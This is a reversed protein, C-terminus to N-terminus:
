QLPLGQALNENVYQWEDGNPIADIEWNPYRYYKGRAHEDIGYDVIQHNGSYMSTYITEPDSDDSPHCLGINHGLEHIFVKAFSYEHYKIAQDYVEFSYGPTRAFGLYGHADKLYHAVICYHFIGKRNVQNFGHNGPANPDITGYLGTNLRLNNEEEGTIEELFDNISGGGGMSGDDIHMVIDHDSFANIVKEKANNSMAHGIMWDVEVFIDQVNVDTNFRHIETYDNIGDEDTDINNDFPNLPNTNDLLEQRDNVADGDTDIMRPNTVYHNPNSTGDFGSQPLKRNNRDAFYEDGDWLGDGDSDPNNTFTTLPNVTVTLTDTDGEGNSITVKATYTGPTNFTYVPSQGNLRTVLQNSNDFIDWTWTYIFSDKGDAAYDTLKAGNFVTPVNAHSIIDPGADVIVDDIDGFAISTAYYSDGWDSGGSIIENGTEDYIFWRENQGAYRAVGIEDNGDGDIDGFAISMPYYSSGWEDGGSCSLSYVNDTVYEYVYWRLNDGGRRGIGIEDDGDGNIDGFAISMGSTWDDGDKYIENGDEDYIFWRENQSAYRAVGIEDKNNGDNNGLSISNVYSSSGWEGNDEGGGSFKENYNGDSIYDYVYWRPDNESCFGNYRRGVAIEDNEDEDVNGFAISIADWDHSWDGGGSLKIDYNNESIYEYVFWRPYDCSANRAVGIEDIGDGDVDGFAISKTVYTNGWDDDERLIEEGLGNYVIWKSHSGEGGRGVGIEDKGDGDIDGFAISTTHYSDGWDDSDGNTIIYGKENMVIWRDNMHAYRAVGIEDDDMSLTNPDVGAGSTEHNCFTNDDSIGNVELIDQLDDRDADITEDWRSFHTTEAWIVNQNTLVGTDGGLHWTNSGEDLYYLVLGDESLGQNLDEDSYIVRIIATYTDTSATNEFDVDFQKEIGTGLSSYGQPDIIVPQIDDGTDYRIAVSVGINNNITIEHYNFTSGDAKNYNVPDSDDDDSILDGDSDYDGINNRGDGDNDNNWYGVGYNTEWFDKEDDDQLGDEDSDVDNPDIKYTNVEDGDNLGDNDTTDDQPDSYVTRGLNSLWVGHVEECDDLGDEDSDEVLPDSYVTKELNDVYVGNVEDGDKLGDNDTYSDYGFTGVDLEESDTYENNETGDDDTDTDRPDTYANYEELDNLGDDDSHPTSPDSSVHRTQGNVTIQWGNVEDGDELGDDDSDSDHPNTGQAVETGDGLGDGDTDPNTPDTGYTYEEGDTLGDHDTDPETPDTKYTDLGTEVEEWDSLDDDDTDDDTPDTDHDNDVDYADAERLDYEYKNLLQDEDFDGDPGKDPDGDGQGPTKYNEVGDDYPLFGYYLEWGDGMEDGDSDPDLLNNNGDPDLDFNIEWGLTGLENNWYDREDGEYFTYRPNGNYPFIFYHDDDTDPDNKDTDYTTDEPVDALKDGDSDDDFEPDIIIPPIDFSIESARAIFYGGWEDWLDLIAFLIDGEPVPGGYILRPDNDGPNYYVLCDRMEDIRPAIIALDDPDPIQIPEPELPTAFISPDIPTIAWCYEFDDPDIGLLYPYPEPFIPESNTPDLIPYHTAYNDSVDCIYYYLEMFNWNLGGYIDSIPTEAMCWKGKWTDLVEIVEMWEVCVKMEAISIRPQVSFALGPTFTLQVEANWGSSCAVNNKYFIEYPSNAEQWVVHIDDQDDLVWKVNSVQSVVPNFGLFIEFGDTIQDLDFDINNAREGAEAPSLQDDLNEWLQVEIGDSFDFYPLFSDDDTDYDIPNTGYDNVEVDDNLGDFDSDLATPDTQIIKSTTSYQIIINDWYAKGVSTEGDMSGFRLHNLGNPEYFPIGTVESNINVKVEYTNSSADVDCQIYYWEYPLLPKIITSTGACLNNSPDIVLKVQGNTVVDLWQNITEALQFHFSICYDSDLDWDLPPSTGYASGDATTELYLSFPSSIYRNTELGFINDQNNQEVFWTDDTEIEFKEFWSTQGGSILIGNLEEYDSFTDGDTDRIWPDTTPDGDIDFSNSYEYLNILGDGDQDGNPGHIPDIRGDNLPSLGNGIEWGDPLDDNDTDSDLPDTNFIYDEDWNTLGDEDYDDGPRVVVFDDSVVNNDMRVEAFLTDESVISSFLHLGVVNCDWTKEITVTDGIILSNILSEGDHILVEGDYINVTTPEILDADGNNKIETYITMTEDEYAFEKSFYLETVVLDCHPPSGASPAENDSYWNCDQTPLKFTPDSRMSDSVTIQTSGYITDETIPDYYSTDITLTDTYLVEQYLLLSRSYFGYQDTFVDYTYQTRENTITIPNNPLQTVDNGDDLHIYGYIEVTTDGAILEHYPLVILLLMLTTVITLVNKIEMHM